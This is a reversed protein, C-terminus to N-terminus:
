TDIYHRTLDDIMGRRKKGPRMKSKMRWAITNHNKERSSEKPGIKKDKRDM